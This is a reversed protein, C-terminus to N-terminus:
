VQCIIIIHCRQMESPIINRPKLHVVFGVINPEGRIIISNCYNLFQFHIKLIIENGASLQLYERVILSYVCLRSTKQESAYYAKYM